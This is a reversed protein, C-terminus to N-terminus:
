APCTSGAFAEATACGVTPISTPLSDCASQLQELAWLGWTPDSSSPMRSWSGWIGRSWCSKSKRALCPRRM